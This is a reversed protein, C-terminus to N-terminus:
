EGLDERQDGNDKGKTVLIRDRQDGLDMGKTVLPKGKSWWPEVDGNVNKQLSTHRVFSKPVPRFWSGHSNNTYIKNWKLIEM